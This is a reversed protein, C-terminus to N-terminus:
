DWLYNDTAFQLLFFCYSKLMMESFNNFSDFDNLFSFPFYKLMMESFHNFSKFDNGGSFELFFFSFPSVECHVLVSILNGMTGSPVFLGAEKGMLKAVQHQLQDM